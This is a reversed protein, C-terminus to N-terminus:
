FLSSSPSAAAVDQRVYKRGHIMLEDPIADCADAFMLTQRQETLDAAAPGLIDRLRLVEAILADRSMQRPHTM